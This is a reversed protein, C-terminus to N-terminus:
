THDIDGDFSSTTLDQEKETILGALGQSSLMGDRKLRTRIDDLMKFLEIQHDKWLDFESKVLVNVSFGNM